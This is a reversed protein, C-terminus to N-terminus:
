ASGWATRASARASCPFFASAAISRWFAWSNARLEDPGVVRGYNKQAPSNANKCPNKRFCHHFNHHKPPSITTFQTAFRTFFAVNERDSFCAMNKFNIKKAEWNPVTLRHKRHHFSKNPPMMPGRLGPRNGCLGELGEQRHRVAERYETWRLRSQRLRRGSLNIRPDSM